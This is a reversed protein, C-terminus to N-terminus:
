QAGVTLEFRGVGDGEAGDVFIDGLLAAMVDAHGAYGISVYMTVPLTVQNLTYTVTDRNVGIATNALHDPNSPVILHVVPPDRPAGDLGSDSTVVYPM